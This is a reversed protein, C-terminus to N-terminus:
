RIVYGETHGAVVANVENVGATMQDGLITHKLAFAATAFDICTQPKCRDLTHLIGAAFADGTGFRDVVGIDYTTGQFVQGQIMLFGCLRNQSASLQTRSTFAIAPLNFHQQLETLANQTAEFPSCDPSELDFVDAMVGSNGFALDTHQLLETFLGNAQKKSDWLSRRYNLDFSVKVGMEKATKAALLNHEACSDSLAPTIGSLHLWDLGSLLKPWDFDIDESTALASDKRDYIVRSPRISSGLEIFYTGLREGGRVIQQTDIGHSNLGSVAADGIGNDPFKTFMSVRNGWRALASAVNSEAGAYDINFQNASNIKQGNVSPTLRLMVEGFCGIRM